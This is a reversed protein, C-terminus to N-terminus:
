RRRRWYETLPELCPVMREDMRRREDKPDAIRHPARRAFFEQLPIDLPL